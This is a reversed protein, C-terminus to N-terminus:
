LSRLSHGWLAWRVERGVEVSYSNKATKLGPEEKFYKSKLFRSVVLSSKTSIDMRLQDKLRFLFFLTRIM